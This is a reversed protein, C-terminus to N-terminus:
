GIAEAERQQAGLNAVNLEMAGQIPAEPPPWLAEPSTRAIVAGALVGLTRGAAYPSFTWVGDQASLALRLATLGLSQTGIEDTVTLDGRTRELVIDAVLGGDSHLDLRGGLLLDGGWGFNPQLRDLLPAIPLPDFAIQADIQAPQAAASGATTSSTPM